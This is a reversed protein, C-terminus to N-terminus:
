AYVTGNNGGASNYRNMITSIYGQTGSYVYRGIVDYNDSGYQRILRDVNAPGWNYAALATRSDGHYKDLWEKMLITGGRINQDPDTPDTIGLRRYHCPMIQMLGRAGKKSVRTPDGGSESRIMSSILRADVGYQDAYKQVIPAYESPLAKGSSRWGSGGRNFGPNFMTNLWGFNFGGGGNSFAPMSFNLLGNSWPNFGGGGGSAVASGSTSKWQAVKSQRSIDKRGDCHWFENLPERTKKAYFDMGITNGMEFKWIHQIIDCEERSTTKRNIDIANGLSHQSVGDAYFKISGDNRERAADKRASREADSCFAEKIEFTKGTKAYYRKMLEIVSAQMETNLGPQGAAGFIKDRNNKSVYSPVDISGVNNSGGVGSMSWQMGSNISGFINDLLSGGGNSQPISFNFQPAFSNFFFPNSSISPATSNGGQSGGFLQPIANAFVSNIALETVPSFTSAAATDGSNLIGLRTDFYSLKCNEM